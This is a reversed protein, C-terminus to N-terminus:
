KSSGPATASTIRDQALPASVVQSDNADSRRRAGPLMPLTRIMTAFREDTEIV